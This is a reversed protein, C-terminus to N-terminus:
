RRERPRSTAPRRRRALLALAPLGILMATSPEPIPQTAYFTFDISDGGSQNTPSGAQNDITWNEDFGPVLVASPYLTGSYSKSSDAFDTNIYVGVCNMYFSLDGGGSDTLVATYNVPESFNFSTGYNYPGEAVQADATSLVGSANIDLTAVMGNDTVSYTASASGGATSTTSISQQFPIATGHVISSSSGEPYDATVYVGQELNLSTFLQASAIPADMMGVLSAVVFFLRALNLMKMKM